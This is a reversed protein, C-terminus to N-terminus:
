YSITETWWFSQTVESMPGTSVFSNTFPAINELWFTTYGIVPPHTASALTSENTVHIIVEATGNEPDINVISYTLNYSGLYTVSLNGTQGLTLLTSYDALYLFMGDLGGLWYNASAPQYYGERIRQAIEERVEDLHEHEQLLETFPDGDRFEHHREGKGTLWEMGVDWPTASDGGPSAPPIEPPVFRCSEGIGCDVGHGSSDTYRVPNNNAYAYRDWAQTGQAALPVISDPQTFRNLYLAAL